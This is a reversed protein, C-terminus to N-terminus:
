SWPPNGMSASLMHTRYQVSLGTMWFKLVQKDEEQAKLVQLLKKTDEESRQGAAKTFKFLVKVKNMWEEKHCVLCQEVVSYNLNDNMIAGEMKALVTPVKDPLAAKTTLEFHYGVFDMCDPVSDDTGRQTVIDMMAYFDSQEIHVPLAVEPALGLFNCRWSDEYVHSYSIVRCCGKPLLAKLCEIVSKVMQKAAGRIIIQNGIVVNFALAHFKVHGLVKHLHRLNKFVPISEDVLSDEPDSEHTTENGSAQVIPPKNSGRPVTKTYLMTFGEETEEQKELDIVSDETPPGELLKETMRNGAAKLIWTFSMHLHKFINKDNCLQVLSRAPSNASRERRFNTPTVISMTSNLRTARPPCKAEEAEYVRNAKEQLEDITERIHKVLFPWSNLLYIKDMMSVTISYWRQLGRAESDKLYFTHSLVYGSQDDGFFIPGERGPCVECSLSRICSQRVMSFVQPHHPYQSSAYSVRAEHDNSIYGTQGVPLSRCAECLDSTKTPLQETPSMCGETPTRLRRESLTVYTGSNPRDAETGPDSELVHEPNQAHYAQTCFMVSPGHKECFHCLAIIANM